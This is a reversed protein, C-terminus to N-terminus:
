KALKVVRHFDARKVPQISLRYGKQVVLMNKFSKRAKLEALFLTKRFKKVFCIDIARWPQEKEPYSASCVRALGVIAPEKVSSHYFLILDGEGMGDRMFNRAQYNRVGTWSVKNDQKLDDISYEGPESKILWYNM